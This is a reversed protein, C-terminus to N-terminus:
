NCYKTQSDCVTGLPCAPYGEGCRARECLGTQQNCTLTPHCGSLHCGKGSAWVGGAVAGAALAETPGGRQVCDSERPPGDGPQKCVMQTQCGTVLALLVVSVMVNHQGSRSASRARSNAAGPLRHRPSQAGTVLFRPHM